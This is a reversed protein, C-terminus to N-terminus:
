CRKCLDFGIKLLCFYIFQNIDQPRFKLSSNPTCLLFCWRPTMQTFILTKRFIEIITLILFYANILFELGFMVMFANIFFYLVHKRRKKERSKEKLNFFIIKM